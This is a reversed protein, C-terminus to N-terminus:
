VIIFCRRWFQNKNSKSGHTIGYRTRKLLDPIDDAVIVHGARERYTLPMNHETPASTAPRFDSHGSTQSIAPGSAFIRPGDYVGADTLKALSFVNGGLDRVTTFGRLLTKENGKAGMLLHYAHDTNLGVAVPINAYASHWHMDILGPMLTRGGGDIITGGAVALAESSVATILDGTVVVNAEEILEESVGDFINVNTFLLPGFDQANVPAVLSAFVM